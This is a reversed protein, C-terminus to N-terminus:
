NDNVASKVAELYGYGYREDPELYAGEGWENWANCFIYDTKYENKAKSILVSLYKEFKEPTSGYVSIGRNGVRPTNDWDTFACPIANDWLKNKQLLIKWLVDYSCVRFGTKGFLSKWIYTIGFPNTMIIRLRSILGMRRDLVLGPQTEIGYRFPFDQFHYNWFHNHQFVFCLEEGLSEKSLQNWYEMMEKLNQILEPRYIILMPSNKDRIYRKDQFYPLLYDFHHKWYSEDGYNQQLLIEKESGDWRRSWSENAWCLCFPIDIEQHTLLYKEPIDLMREGDGFWYHYISFGYVGYEKALQAQWRMTNVDSLDYYRNQYPIRPQYHNNYLPQAKSTNTWETFGKGWWANNKENEYFQPLYYAIVKM